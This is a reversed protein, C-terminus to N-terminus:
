EKPVAPNQLQQDNPQPTQDAPAAPALQAQVQAQIAQTVNAIMGGQVQLCGMVSNLQDFNLELKVKDM